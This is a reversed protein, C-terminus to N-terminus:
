KMMESVSVPVATHANTATSLGYGRIDTVADTASLSWGASPDMVKSGKPPSPSVAGLAAYMPVALIAISAEPPVARTRTVRSGFNVQM